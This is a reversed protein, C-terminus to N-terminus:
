TLIYTRMYIYMIFEAAHMHTRIYKDTFFQKFLCTLVQERM